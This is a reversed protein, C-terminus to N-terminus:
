LLSRQVVVTVVSIKAFAAAEPLTKLISLIITAFM